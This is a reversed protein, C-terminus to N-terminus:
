WFLINWDDRCHRLRSGLNEHVQRGYVFRWQREDIHGSDWFEIIQCQESLVCEEQRTQGGSIHVHTLKSVTRLM